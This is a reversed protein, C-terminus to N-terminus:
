ASLVKSRVQARVNRGTERAKRSLDQVQGPLREEYPQYSEEVKTIVAEIREDAKAVTATTVKAASSAQAKLRDTLDDSRVAKLLDQVGAQIKNVGMVGLGVVTYTADKAKATADKASTPASSAVKSAADKAKATTAKAAETAKATADKATSAAKKVTNEAM